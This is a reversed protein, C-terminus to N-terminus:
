LIIKDLYYLHGDKATVGAGSFGALCKKCRVGREESIFYHECRIPEKLEVREIKGTWIESPRKKYFSDYRDERLTQDDSGLLPPLDRQNNM